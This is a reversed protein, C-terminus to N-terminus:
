IHRPDSTYGCGQLRFLVFIVSPSPIAPRSNNNQQSFKYRKM